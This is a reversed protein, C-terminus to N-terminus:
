LAVSIFATDDAVLQQADLVSLRVTYTGSTNTSVISSADVQLNTLDCLTAAPACGVDAAEISGILRPNDLPPQIFLLFPESPRLGNPVVAQASFSFILPDGVSLTSPQLSTIIISPQDIPASPPNVSTTSDDESCAGCWLAIGIVAAPIWSRNPM